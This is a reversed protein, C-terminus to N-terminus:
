RQGNGEILGGHPSTISITIFSLNLSSIRSVRFISDDTGTVYKWLSPAGNQCTYQRKLGALPLWPDNNSVLSFSM